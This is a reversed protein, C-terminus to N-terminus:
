QNSCQRMIKVKGQYRLFSDQARYLQQVVVQSGSRRQAGPPPWPSMTFKPVNHARDNHELGYVLVHVLRPQAM